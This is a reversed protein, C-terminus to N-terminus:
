REFNVFLREAEREKEEETMEPPNFQPEKDWRQGTVPNIAPGKITGEENAPLPEGLALLFGSGYRYGVNEVFQQPNTDSIEFLLRPILVREILDISKIVWGQNVFIQRTPEALLLVNCICRLAIRSTIEPAKKHGYRRVISIARESFLSELDCSCAAFAKLQTFRQCLKKTM